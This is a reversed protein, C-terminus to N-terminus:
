KKKGRLKDLETNLKKIKNETKEKDEDLNILVEELNVKKEAMAAVLENMATLCVTSSPADPVENMPIFVERELQDRAQVMIELLSNIRARSIADARKTEIAVLVERLDAREIKKQELQVASCASKIFNM